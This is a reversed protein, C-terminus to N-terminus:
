TTQQPNDALIAGLNDPLLSLAFYTLLFHRFARIKTVKSFGHFARRLVGLWAPDDRLNESRCQVIMFRDLRGPNEARNEM